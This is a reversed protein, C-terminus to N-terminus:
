EEEDSEDDDDGPDPMVIRNLHTVFGVMAKFMKAIEEQGHRSDKTFIDDPIKKGVTFSRLKLLEIDRHEALYGKPKTKLADEKNLEAFAKIVAKEDGEESHGNIDKAEEDHEIAAEIEADVDSATSKRPRGRGKKSNSPTSAAAKAKATAAKGKAAATGTLKSSSKTSSSSATLFMDRFEPDMLVRRWRRPREDISARVKALADAPPHWLGGGVFCKGPELHLYYCAYPGKRGTRSWAAGYNPKYPTPDHSFRVDRYIRFNVDKFPLEPITEDAAIIKDTMTMVYSEWDKFSRRFEQDHMKLWSRKNNAKLDKLFALTNPHLRDDAYEIGGTDRLKPLPIFTTKPIADEDLESDEDEEEKTDPVDEDEYDDEEEVELKAKKSARSSKTANARKSSELSKRRPKVDPESESESIEPEFYKSTKTASTSARQSRRRSSSSATPTSVAAEPAAPAAKRKRGAPM